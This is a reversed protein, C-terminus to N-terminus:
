DVHLPQVPQVPHLEPELEPEGPHLALAPGTLAVSDALGALLTVSAVAATALLAFLVPAAWNPTAHVTGGEFTCWADPPLSSEGTRLLWGGGPGLDCTRIFSRAAFWWHGYLAPFGLGSGLAAAKLLARRLRPHRTARTTM